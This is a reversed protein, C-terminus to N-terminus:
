EEKKLQLIHEAMISFTIPQFHSKDKLNVMFSEMHDVDLFPLQRIMQMMETYSSYNEHFSVIVRDYNMGIGSMVMLTSHPLRRELNRAEKLVEDLDKRSVQAKFRVFTLAMIEYGLKSLDPLMTYEKIVSKKELKRRARTITPQSVGIKKALARDSLRGNKMLESILKLELERL